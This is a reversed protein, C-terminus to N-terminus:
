FPTPPLTTVDKGISSVVCKSFYGIGGPGGEEEARRQEARRMGMSIASCRLGPERRPPVWGVFFHGNGDKNRQRAKSKLCDDREPDQRSPGERM